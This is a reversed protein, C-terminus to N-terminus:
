IMIIKGANEASYGGLEELRDKFESSQLIEIFAKIHPLELYEAPIAFDYEEPGVEIFDLDMAKAASLVGMGSDAGDSAVAAAVAMHTAMERDYGNISSPDINEQKLRYDFLVRTGAGRQRNVYRIAGHEAPAASASNGALDAISKIGLPNGKKVMIGQIRHVGKILAMPEKFMKKIYSVNYEGTEEDLLHIPAM